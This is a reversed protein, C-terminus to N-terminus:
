GAVCDLLPFKGGLIPESPVGLWKELIAAYVTRFDTKTKLNGNEDLDTLSPQTGHVGAKVGPGFLFM